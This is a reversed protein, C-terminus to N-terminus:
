PPRPGGVARTGAEREALSPGERHPLRPLGTWGKSGGRLKGGALGSSDGPRGSGSALGEATRGTCWWSPTVLDQPHGTHGAVVPSTMMPNAHHKGLVAKWVVPCGLGRSGTAWGKGTTALKSGELGVRETDPAPKSGEGPRASGLGRCGSGLTGRSQPSAERSPQRRARCRWTAGPPLETGKHGGSRCGQHPGWGGSPHVGQLPSAQPEAGSGRM